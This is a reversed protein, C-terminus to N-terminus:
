RYFPRLAPLIFTDVHTFSFYALLNLLVPWHLWFLFGFALATEHPWFGQRVNDLVDAHSIGLLQDRSEFVSQRQFVHGAWPSGNYM